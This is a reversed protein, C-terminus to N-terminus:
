RLDKRHNGDGPARARKLLTTVLLAALASGAMAPSTALIRSLGDITEVSFQQVFDVLAAVNGALAMHADEPQVRLAQGPSRLWVRAFAGNAVAVLSLIGLPRLLHELMQIREAVPASKYVQGVLEPISVEAAKCSPDEQPSSTDPLHM